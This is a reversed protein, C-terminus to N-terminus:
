VESNIFILKGDTHCPANGILHGSVYLDFKMWYVSKRFEKLLYYCAGHAYLYYSVMCLYLTCM